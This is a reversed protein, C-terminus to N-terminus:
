DTTTFSCFVQNACTNAEFIALTIRGSIMWHILQLKSQVTLL